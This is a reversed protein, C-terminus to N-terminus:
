RVIEEQPWNVPNLINKSLEPVAQNIRQMLDAPLPGAHMLRINERMQELSDVGVLVRTIGDIGFAYRMALETKQLGAENAIADVAERVPVIEHLFPKIKETPMVALGQFYVSRVFVATGKSKAIDFIRANSFRRDFLNTPIQVAEVDACDVIKETAEPSVTSVGVNKVLGKDKMKLLSDFYKFDNESHFLCVPLVDLGLRKLSSAVSKEVYEDAANASLEEKIAPVKTVTVVKEALGLEAIIKGLVDESDGYAAATDLGDIGGEVACAVIDRATEYSPKGAENAIGYNLGFQVTGLMLRASVNGKLQEIANM